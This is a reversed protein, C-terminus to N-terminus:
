DAVDVEAGLVHDLLIDEVMRILRDPGDVPDLLCIEQAPSLRVDAGGGYPTFRRLRGPSLDLSACRAIGEGTLTWRDLAAERVKADFARDFDQWHLAAPLRVTLLRDEVVVPSGPSPGILPRVQRAFWDTWGDAAKLYRQGDHWVSGTRDRRVEDMREALRGPWCTSAKALGTGLIAEFAKLGSCSALYVGRDRDGRYGALWLDTAFGARPSLDLGTGGVSATPRWIPDIAGAPDHFDVLARLLDDIEVVGADIASRLQALIPKHHNNM